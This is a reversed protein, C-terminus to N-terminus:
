FQVRVARTQGARIEVTQTREVGRDSVARLTYSGARVDSITRTGAPYSGRRQGDLYITAGDSLIVRVNGVNAPPRPRPPTRVATETEGANATGEEETDPEESGVDPESDPEASGEAATSGEAQAPASGELADPLPVVPVNPQASADAQMDVLESPIIDSSGEASGDTASLPFEALGSGELPPIVEALAGSGDTTAAGPALAPLVVFFVLAAGAGLVGILMAAILVFVGKNSRPPEDDGSTGSNGVGVQTITNLGGAHNVKTPGSSMQGTAGPTKANGLTSPGGYNSRELAAIRGTPTDSFLDALYESIDRQTLLLGESRLYQELALQLDAASQFRQDREKALSRLVIQELEDPINPAIETLSRPQQNMIATIALLESEHGFPRQGVLLEYLVIGLAFIDSRADLDQAMIQEPSMYSLKGKVAGTQTKHSSTAAKAIGFDM